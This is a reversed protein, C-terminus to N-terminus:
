ATAGDYARRLENIDLKLMKLMAKMARQSREADDSHLLEGLGRPVINWPIGYRDVLWGCQIAQGGEVLADWLRDVEDQTDCSVFLAVPVPGGGAAPAGGNLAMFDQGNLRFEVTM